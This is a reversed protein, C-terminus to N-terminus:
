TTQNRIPVDRVISWTVAALLGCCLLATAAATLPTFAGLQLGTVELLPPPLPGFSGPGTVVETLVVTGLGLPVLALGLGVGRYLAAGLMAGAAVWVTLLVVHEFLILHYQDPADFLHTNELRQSWGAIRYIVREIAFGVTVLVAVLVAYIALFIASDRAVERRTRGHTVYLPLYVATVYVGIAAVFWRVVQTAIEWGSIRVETFTSVIGTLLLVTLLFGGGILPLGAGDVSLRHRLIVGRDQIPPTASSTGTTPEATANM